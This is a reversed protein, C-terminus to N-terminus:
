RAPEARLSVEDPQASEAAWSSWSRAAEVHETSWWSMIFVRSVSLLQVRAQQVEEAVSNKSSIVCWGPM